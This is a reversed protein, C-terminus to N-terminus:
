RSLGTASQGLPITVQVLEYAVLRQGTNGLGTVTETPIWYAVKIGLQELKRQPLVMDMSCGTDIM